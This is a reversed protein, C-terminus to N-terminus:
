SYEDLCKRLPSHPGHLSENENWWAVFADLSSFEEVITRKNTDVTVTIDLSVTNVRETDRKGLCVGCTFRSTCSCVKLTSTM